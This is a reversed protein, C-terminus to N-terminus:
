VILLAIGGSADQVYHTRDRIVYRDGRIFAQEIRASEPTGSDDKAAIALPEGHVERFVVLKCDAKGVIQVTYSRSAPPEFLFDSQAAMEVSM